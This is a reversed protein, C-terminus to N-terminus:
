SCQQFKWTPKARTTSPSITKPTMPQGLQCSSYEPLNVLLICSYLLVAVLDPTMIIDWTPRPVHLFCNHFACIPSTLIGWFQILHKTSPCWRMWPARKQMGSLWVQSDIGNDLWNLAVVSASHTSPFCTRRTCVQQPLNERTWLSHM